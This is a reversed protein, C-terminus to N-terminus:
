TAVGPYALESLDERARRQAVYTEAKDYVALPLGPVELLLPLLEDETTLARFMVGATLGHGPRDVVTITDEAAVWGQDLVALFVGPRGRETFRHEWGEGAAGHRALWRAFTSCPTRVSTVQLRATGVLWQEGLVCSNLDIGSTTVNEGFLGPRLTKELEREWHQLEESPYAYVARATGGHYRGNGVEDGELGAAHVAVPGDVPLKDIATRLLPREEVARVRAVNVSAVWAPSSSM